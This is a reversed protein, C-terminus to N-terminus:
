LAGFMLWKFGIAAADKKESSLRVNSIVQPFFIFRM